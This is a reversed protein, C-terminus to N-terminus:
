FFFLGPISHIELYGDQSFSNLREQKSVTSTASVSRQKSTSMTRPTKEQQRAYIAWRVSPYLGQFGVKFGILDQSM